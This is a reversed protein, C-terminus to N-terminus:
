NLDRPNLPLTCCHLLSTERRPVGDNQHARPRVCLVTKVDERLGELQNKLYLCRNDSERLEQKISETEAVKLYADM